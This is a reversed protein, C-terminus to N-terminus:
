YIRPQQSAWINRIYSSGNGSDCCCTWAECRKRSARGPRHHCPEGLINRSWQSVEARTAPGFGYTFIYRDKFDEVDELADLFGELNEVWQSDQKQPFNLEAHQAVDPSWLREHPVGNTREWQIIAGAVIRLAESTSSLIIYSIEM